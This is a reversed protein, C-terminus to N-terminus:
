LGLAEIQREARARWESAPALDAAAVLAQRAAPRDGLAALARGLQYAAEPSTPSLRAARRAAAAAAAPDGCAIHAAALTAWATHDEPLLRAAEEAAPRGAECLSLATTTHFRALALAYAGRREPPALRLASAYEQAAAPYDRRAALLEAMVLHAGPDSPALARAADIQARAADEAHAALYVMALLARARPEAPNAAVLAELARLGGARDGASWRTYAAYAAAAVGGAAAPSVSAFQREALPYLRAALFIQGLLQHRQAPEARLAAELEQPSPSPPPLLPEALAVLAPALAAAPAPRAADALEGFAAAHDATARLAALRTHVAARWRPPLAPALAARYSAEAPGYQGARLLREADLARRLPHLPSREPVLGYFQAAEDPLGALEAVRGQYLRVLDLTSGDLGLGVAYGLSRSAAPLEGRVAQVMGLRAYVEARLDDHAAPALRGYAARADHYRGQAFRADARRLDDHADPRFVLLAGQWLVALAVLLQAPVITARAIRRM